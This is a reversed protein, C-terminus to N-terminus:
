TWGGNNERKILMPLIDVWPQMDHHVWHTYKFKKGDKKFTYTFTIDHTDDPAFKILNDFTEPIDKYRTFTELKGNLLIVFKHNAFTDIGYCGEITAIGDQIDIFVDKPITPSIAVLSDADVTFKFPRFQWVRENALEKKM